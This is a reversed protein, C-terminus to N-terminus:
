RVVNLGLSFVASRTITQGGHTFNRDGNEFEDSTSLSKYKLGRFVKPIKVKSFLSLPSQNLILISRYKDFVFSLLSWDPVVFDRYSM